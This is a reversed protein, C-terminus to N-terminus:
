KPVLAQDISPILPPQGPSTAAYMMIRARLAAGSALGPEAAVARAAFAAVRAAAIDDAPKGSPTVGVATAGTRPPSTVALDAPGPTGEAGVVLLGAADAMVRDPPEPAVLRAPVVILLRSLHRAAEALDTRMLRQGTEAAIVVIRTPTDAVFRLAMAIQDQRGFAVRAVVLRAARGETLVIEALQGDRSSADFPRADNDAFDWGILEGEGDRALRGAVDARRYDLGAGVLAVAIGGPDRGAPVKPDAARAGSGASFLMLAAAVVSLRSRGM